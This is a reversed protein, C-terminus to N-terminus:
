TVAHFTVKCHITDMLYTPNDVIKIDTTNVFVVLWLIWFVTKLHPINIQLGLVQLNYSFSFKYALM